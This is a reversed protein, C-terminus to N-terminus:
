CSKWQKKKLISFVWTWSCLAFLCFLWLYFGPGFSLASLFYGSRAALPGTALSSIGLLLALTALVGATRERRLLLLVVASFFLPNAYWAWVGARTARWGNILLTWGTLPTHDGLQLAPLALAATWGLCIALTVLRVLRKM